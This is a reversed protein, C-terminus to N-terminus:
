RHHRGGMQQQRPACAMFGNGGMRGMGMMMGPPLGAAQAKNRLQERLDFLEGAIKAARAPDPTTSNMVARQEARKQAMSKRLDVTETLFADRAKMTAEDMQQGQMQMPIPQQPGPGKMGGPAAVVTNFGALAIASTVTAALIIKRTRNLSDM